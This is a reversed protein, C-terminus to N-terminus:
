SWDIRDPNIIWQLAIFRGEAVYAILAQGQDEKNKALMRDAARKLETQQEALAAIEEAPRAALVNDDNAEFLSDAFALIRARTDDFSRVPGPTLMVEAPADDDKARGFQWWRRAAPAREVVGTVTWSRGASDVIELGLHRGRESMWGTKGRLLGIAQFPMPDGDVPFGLVPFRLDADM